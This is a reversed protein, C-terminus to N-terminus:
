AEERFILVLTVIGTGAEVKTIKFRIFPSLVSSYSIYATTVGLATYVVGAATGASVIPDYWDVNNISCQQAVTITGSTNTLVVVTDGQCRSFDIADSYGVTGNTVSKLKALHTRALISTSM